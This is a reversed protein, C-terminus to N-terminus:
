SKSYNDIHASQKTADVNLLALLENGREQVSEPYKALVGKIVDARLSSLGKAEKLASVLKLGVAESKSHEFGTLLKTM